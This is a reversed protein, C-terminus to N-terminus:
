CLEADLADPIIFVNASPWEESQQHMCPMGSSVELLADTYTLMLTRGVAQLLLRWLSSCVFYGM